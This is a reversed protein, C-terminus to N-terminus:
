YLGFSALIERKRKLNGKLSARNYELVDLAVQEDRIQEIAEDVASDKRVAYEFGGRKIFKYGAKEFIIAINESIQEFITIGKQPMGQLTKPSICLLINQLVECYIILDELKCNSWECKPLTKLLFSDIDPATGRIPMIRFVDGIYDKLPQFRGHGLFLDKFFLHTLHSYEKWPDIVKSTIIDYLHRSPNDMTSPTTASPIRIKM